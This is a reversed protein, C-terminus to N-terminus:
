GWMGNIRRGGEVVVGAVVVEMDVVIGVFLRRGGDVSVSVKLKGKMGGVIGVVDHGIGRQITGM